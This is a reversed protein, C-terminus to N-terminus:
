VCLVWLTGNIEASSATGNFVDVFWGVPTAVGFESVDFVPGSGSVYPNQWDVPTATIRYGGGTAETGAPCSVTAQDQAPAIGFNNTAQTV